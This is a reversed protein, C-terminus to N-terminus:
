DVVKLNDKKTISLLIYYLYYEFSLFFNHNYIDISIKQILISKVSM